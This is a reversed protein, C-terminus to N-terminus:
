VQFRLVAVDDMLRGYLRWSLDRRNPLFFSRRNLLHNLFVIASEPPSEPPLLPISYSFM